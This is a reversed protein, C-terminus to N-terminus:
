GHKTRVATTHHDHGNEHLLASLRALDGKRPIGALWATSHQDFMVDLTRDSDRLHREYQAFLQQGLATLCHLRQNDSGRLVKTQEAQILYPDTILADILNSSLQDLRDLQELSYGSYVLVNTGPKHNKILRLLEFLEIAQDFPEGGSITVGDCEDLWATINRVIVEPTIDGKQIQWTDGSICGSCRISCGQFWIGIRRGPGLTQIPYHIRSIALQLANAWKM